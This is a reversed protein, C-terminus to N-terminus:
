KKAKRLDPGSDACWSVVRPDSLRSALRENRYREIVLDRDLNTTILTMRRGGQRVDLVELLASALIEPNAEGGLDDIVLTSWTLLEDQEEAPAGFNAAFVRALRAASRFRGGTFAIVYGAAVTKGCGTGGHLVLVPPPNHTTLWRKVLQMSRTERLGKDTVIAAAIEDRLPVRQARLNDRRYGREYGAMAREHEPDPELAEPANAALKALVARLHEPAGPGRRDDNM